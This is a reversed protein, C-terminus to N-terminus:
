EKTAGENSQIADIRKQAEALDQSTMRTTVLLMSEPDMQGQASALTLWVYAEVNDKPVGLGNLYLRGLNFRAKAHGHESAKRFWRAAEAEDKAVGQNGDLCMLGLNFQAKDNGQEAAAQYWKSAAVYDQEVGRGHFYAVGLKYQAEPDGKQVAALLQDVGDPTSSAPTAEGTASMGKFLTGLNVKEFDKPSLTVSEGSKKDRIQVAGTTEDTSVIEMDPNMAVMLRAASLMPNIEKGSASQSNLEKQIANLDITASDGSKKDRITIAGNPGKGPIIEVDPNIMSVLNAAAAVANENNNSSTAAKFKRYGWWALGATGGMVILLMLGLILLIARVNKKKAHPPDVPATELLVPPLKDSM